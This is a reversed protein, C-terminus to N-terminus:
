QLRQLLCWHLPFAVLNSPPQDNESSAQKKAAKKHAQREARAAEAAVHVLIHM